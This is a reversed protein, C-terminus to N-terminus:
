RRCTSRALVRQAGAWQAVNGIVGSRTLGLVAHLTELFTLTQAVSVVARAASFTAVAASPAPHALATVCRAAVLTWAALQAANYAALYAQALGM